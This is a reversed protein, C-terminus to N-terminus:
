TKAAITTPSRKWSRPRADQWDLGVSDYVVQMQEAISWTSCCRRSASRPGTKSREHEEKTLKPMTRDAWIKGFKHHFAEDTMVLQCLKVCCRTTRKQYLTAFAGMALGEVLMQM